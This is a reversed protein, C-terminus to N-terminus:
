RQIPASLGAGPATASGAGRAAQEDPTLPRFRIDVPTFSGDARQRITVLARQAERRLDRELKAARDQGVYLRGRVLGQRGYVDAAEARLRHDCAAFAAESELVRVRSIVPREGILCLMAPLDGDEQELGPWDYRFEVYHGRLYDRPDYGMIPVEWDHGQWSTQESLGWLGALGLAPLVVAFARLPWTAAVSM